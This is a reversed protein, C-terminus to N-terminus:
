WAQQPLAAPRGSKRQMMRGPIADRAGECPNPERRHAPLRSCRRGHDARQLPRGSQACRAPAHRRCDPCAAQEDHRIRAHPSQCDARLFRSAVRWPSSSNRTGSPRWRASRRGGPPPRCRQSPARLWCMAACDRSSRLRRLRSCRPSSRRASISATHSVPSSAMYECFVASHAVDETYTPNDCGATLVGDVVDKALGADALAKRSVEAHLQLSTKGPTRFGDSRGVGVVAVNGSFGNM